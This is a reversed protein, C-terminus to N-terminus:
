KIRIFIFEPSIMLNVGGVRYSFDLIFPWDIGEVYDGRMWFPIEWHIPLRNNIIRDSLFVSYGYYFVCNRIVCRYMGM